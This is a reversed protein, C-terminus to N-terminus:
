TGSNEVQRILSEKVEPPLQYWPLDMLAGQLAFLMNLSVREPYAAKVRLYADVVGIDFLQEATHVGVAELSRASQPGINRLSSLGSM